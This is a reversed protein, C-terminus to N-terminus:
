LIKNWNRKVTAISIGTKEVIMKQTPIIGENIFEMRSKNIKDYTKKSKNTNVLIAGYSQRKKTTSIKAQSKIIEDYNKGDSKRVWIDKELNSSCYLTYFDNDFHFLLDMLDWTYDFKFWEGCYHYDIFKNHIYQEIDENKYSILITDPNASKISKIRKELNSTKGVKYYRGDFLLYTIIKKNM